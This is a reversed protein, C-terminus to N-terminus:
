EASFEITYVRMSVTRSDQRAAGDLCGGVGTMVVEDPHLSSPVTQVGSEGAVHEGDLYLNWYGSSGQSPYFEVKVSHRGTPIRESAEWLVIKDNNQHESILRFMQDDYLLFGIRWEDDDNAGWTKGDPDETPYNDLTLIRMYSDQRDYFDAPLEYDMETIMLGSAAYGDHRPIKRRIRAFHTYAEYGGATCDVYGNRVDVSEM